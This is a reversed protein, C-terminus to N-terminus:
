IRALIKRFGRERKPPCLHPCVKVVHDAQHWVFCRDTGDDEIVTVGLARAFEEATEGNTMEM